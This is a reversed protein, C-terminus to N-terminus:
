TIVGNGTGVFLTLAILIVDAAITFKSKEPKRMEYYIGLGFLVIMVWGFWTM